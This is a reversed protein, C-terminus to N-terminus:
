RYVESRFLYLWNRSHPLWSFGLYTITFFRIIRWIQINWIMPVWSYPNNSIRISAADTSTPFFAQHACTFSKFIVIIFNCWLPITCLQHLVQSSCEARVVTPFWRLGKRWGKGISFVVANGCSTGLRKVATGCWGWTIIFDLAKTKAMILSVRYGM